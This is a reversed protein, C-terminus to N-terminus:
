EGQYIDQEPDVDVILFGKEFLTWEHWEPFLVFWQSQNSHQIPNTYTTTDENPYGLLSDIFLCAQQAEEISDTLIAKM